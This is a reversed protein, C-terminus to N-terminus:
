MIVIPIPIPLILPFWTPKEIIGKTAFKPVNKNKIFQYLNRSTKPDITNQDALLPEMAVIGAIGLIQIQSRKGKRALDIGQMASYALRLDKELEGHTPGKVYIFLEKDTVVLLGTKWVGTKNTRLTVTFKSRIMERINTVEVGADKAIYSSIMEKKLPVTCGALLSITIFLLIHKM